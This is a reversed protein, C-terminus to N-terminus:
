WSLVKGGRGKVMLDTLGWVLSDLRDPSPKKPDGDYDCMQGELTQFRGVHHVKNKEYLASVPEARLMKGRTARVSKYSVNRAGPVKVSRITNEVMDGGQNVEGVIRDAEYKLYVQVAKTAWAEPRGIMSVDDLVYGEGMADIATVTIGAEDSKKKDGTISPDVNVTIRRLTIRGQAVAKAFDDPDIRSREIMEETWLANPNDELLEGYIEQRGLRTGEYQSKLFEIAEPALSTNDYMTGRTIVVRRNLVLKKIHPVPEPTGTLVLQARGRRLGFLLNSLTSEPNEWAAPEDGWGFQHQPGRLRKPEESSYLIDVSGNPWLMRRYSPQYEPKNWPPCIQLLGSSEPDIGCMVDRTDAITPAVLAVQRVGQEHRKRTLQAGTTTKGWGRGTLILWILWPTTPELQEPRAWFEWDYLLTYVLEPPLTELLTQQESM